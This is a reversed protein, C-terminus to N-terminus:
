VGHRVQSSLYRFPSSTHSDYMSFLVGPAQRMQHNYPGLGSVRV